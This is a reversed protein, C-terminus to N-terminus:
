RRPAKTSWRSGDAARPDQTRKLGAALRTYIDAVKAGGRITKPMVALTEALILRVLRPGRSWVESSLGTKPIPWHTPHGAPSKWDGGAIGAERGLRPLLPREIGELRPPLHPSRGASRRSCYQPTASPTGTDFLPMQGM